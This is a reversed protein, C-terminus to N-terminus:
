KLEELVELSKMEYDIHMRLFRKICLQLQRLVENSVTFTYLKGIPASIIYQMTYLASESVAVVDSVTSCEKCVMGDAAASFGCLEETKGCKVCRYLEPAIGLLQLFKLEFTVMITYIYFRMFSYLMFVLLMSYFMIYYNAYNFYYLYLAWSCLGMMILDLIGMPLSQKWSTKITMKFDEWMFVPEGKVLNKVIYTCAANVPGFTVIVLASLAYLINTVVTNAYVPAMQGHIGFLAAFAASTDGSAIRIGNVVPFVESAPAVGLDSFIGSLALLLFFM